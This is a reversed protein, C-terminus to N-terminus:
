KVFDIERSIVTFTDFVNSWPGLLTNLEDMTAKQVDLSYAHIKLLNNQTECTPTRIPGTTIFKSASEARSKRASYLPTVAHRARKLVHWCITALARLAWVAVRWSVDTREVSLDMGSLERCLLYAKPLYAKGLTLRKMQTPFISNLNCLFKLFM